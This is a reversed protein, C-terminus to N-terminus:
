HQEPHSGKDYIYNQCEQSFHKAATADVSLKEGFISMFHHRYRIKLPLCGNSAAFDDENEINTYLM